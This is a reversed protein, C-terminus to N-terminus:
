FNLSDTGRTGSGGRYAGRGNTGGHNGGRSNGGRNNNQSNGSRNNNQQSNQSNSEFNQFGRGYGGRRSGRNNGQYYGRGRSQRFRSQYTQFSPQINASATAQQQKELKNEMAKMRSMLESMQKLLQSHTDSSDNTAQGSHLQATKQKAAPRNSNLDEQEVKRVERLLTQFDKISDYLHRTSNKLQQSRLGTWFKSRLMADKAVFDIHGYRIARSLTQELRSGYQVITESEKQFDNYFTQILTEGSSVNGYFGDLKNLIDTVTAKEGLPVLLSRASGKLSTRISQLLVSEQLYPTNQLCKVEFSWVEYTVEGKSPEESGSFFPLKPVNYPQAIYSTNFPQSNNLLQQLRPVPSVGPFNFKPIAGGHAASVQPTSTVHTNILPTSTVSTGTVSTGTVSIGAIIAPLKPMQKTDVSPPLVGTGQGEKSTRLSLLAEYEDKTLVKYDKSEIQQVMERLKEESPGTAM